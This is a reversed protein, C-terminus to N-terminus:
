DVHMRYVRSPEGEMDTMMQYFECGYKEYLGDHNTSIYIDHVQEARALREIESFLVGVHRHGRYAPFTYVFGIWPTLKTPQIDDKEAYTCFSVLTDGDTLLLVKSKEGVAEKFRNESLLEYLFQGAGWDSKRIQALWGDPRDCSFYEIVQMQLVEGHFLSFGNEVRQVSLAKRGIEVVCIVTAFVLVGAASCSDFGPPQGKGTYIFAPLVAGACLSHPVNDCAAAKERLHQGPIERVGEGWGDSREYVGTWGAYFVCRPM